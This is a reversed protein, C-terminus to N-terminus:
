SKQTLNSEGHGMWVSNEPVLGKKDPKGCKWVCTPNQRGEIEEGNKQPVWCFHKPLCWHFEEVHIQLSFTLTNSTAWQGQTRHCSWDCWALVGRFSWILNWIRCSRCNCCFYIPTWGSSLTSIVNKFPQYISMLFQFLIALFKPSPSLKNNYKISSINPHPIYWCPRCPDCLRLM